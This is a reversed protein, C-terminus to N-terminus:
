LYVEWREIHWPKGWDEFSGREGEVWGTIVYGWPRISSEAGEMSVQDDRPSDLDHPVIMFSKGPYNNSEHERAHWTKGPLRGLEVWDGLKEVTKEHPTSARFRIIEKKSM